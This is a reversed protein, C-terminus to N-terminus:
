RAAEGITQNLLDMETGYMREWAEQGAHLAVGYGGTQHHTPCLPIVLYNGARQSGGQGERVHHLAAPTPGHGLNRCVCCGLSAVRAMYRKEAATTM